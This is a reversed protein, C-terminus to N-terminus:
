RKKKKAALTLTVIGGLKKGSHLGKGGKNSRMHRRRLRIREKTRQFEWGPIGNRDRTRGVIYM